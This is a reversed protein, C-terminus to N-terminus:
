TETMKPCQGLHLFKEDNKRRWIQSKKVREQIGEPKKTEHNFFSEVKNKETNVGVRQRLQLLLFSCCFYSSVMKLKKNLKSLSVM